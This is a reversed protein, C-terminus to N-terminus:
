LEEVVLSIKSMIIAAQELGARNSAVIQKSLLVGNVPEKLGFAHAEFAKVKIVGLPAADGAIM